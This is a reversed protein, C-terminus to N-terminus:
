IFLKINFVRTTNLIYCGGALLINAASETLRWYEPRLTAETFKQCGQPRSLLLFRSTLSARWWLIIMVAQNTTKLHWSVKLRQVCFCESLTMCFINQRKHRSTLTLPAKAASPVWTSFTTIATCPTKPIWRPDCKWASLGARHSGNITDWTTLFVVSNSWRLRWNACMGRVHTMLARTYDHWAWTKLFDGTVFCRPSWM